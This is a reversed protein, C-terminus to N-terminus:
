QELSTPTILVPYHEIQLRTAIDNGNVPLITIDPAAARIRALAETDTVEVALGTAGMEQLETARQRLWALSRPDEGVLFFPRLGPMSLARSTIQGPSLHSSRVPLIWAEDAFTSLDAHMARDPQTKNNIPSREVQFHPRTFDSPQDGAVTLEPQVLPALLLIFYCTLPIRKM